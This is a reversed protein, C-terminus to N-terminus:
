DESVSEEPKLFPHTTDYNTSLSEPMEPFSHNFDPTLLDRACGLTVTDRLPYKAIDQSM